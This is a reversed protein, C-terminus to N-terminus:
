ADGARTVQLNAIKKKDIVQMLKSAVDNEFRMRAEEHRAAPNILQQSSSGGGGGALAGAGFEGAMAGIRSTNQGSAIRGTNQGSGAAGRPSRSTDQPSGVGVAGGGGRGHHHGSYALAGLRAMHSSHGGGGTATSMHRPSGSSKSFNKAAAAGNFTHRAGGM